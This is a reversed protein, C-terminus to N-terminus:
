SLAVGGLWGCLPTALASYYSVWYSLTTTRVYGVNDMVTGNGLYIGIHGYIRGAYSSPSSNVAVIMGPQINATSTGCWAYYMDDANGWFTGIGANAFVNTVWAACLSVGPSPTSYCSNIVAALHAEHNAGRAAGPPGGPPPPADPTNGGAAGGGRGTAAPPRTTSVSGGGSNNQQAQEQEKRRREEEEEQKRKEEALRQAELLEADRQAILEQVETSLSAVLEQSEAQKERADELQAKQDAQLAELDAKQAELAAQEEELQARLARVEAIMESDSETIKDLYYINSALEDFTASSLLLEITSSPGAKYSSSMRRALIEQKDEIQAQTEEIQAQKDEIQDSVDVIQAMTDSLQTAIEEYEATIRDLEAQAQEYDMQAADLKEQTTQARAVGPLVTACIGAGILLRLADRRTVCRPTIGAESSTIHTRPM